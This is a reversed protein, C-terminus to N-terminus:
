LTSQALCKIRNEYINKIKNLFYDYDFSMKMQNCNGCCPVCNSKTYGENNNKRDIGNYIYSGNQSTRKYESAPVENCYYCNQKTLFKFYDDSIDWILNRSSAGRKYGDLLANFAAVGPEYRNKVAEIRACGCSRSCGYSQKEKKLNNGQVVKITGCDCKCLWCSRIGRDEARSLVVWRGFREGTLDKKIKIM